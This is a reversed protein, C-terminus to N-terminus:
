FDSVIALIVGYEYIRCRMSILGPRRRKVKKITCFETSHPGNADCFNQVGIRTRGLRSCHEFLKLHRTRQLKRCCLLVFTLLSLMFAANLTFCDLVILLYCVLHKLCRKMRKSQYNNASIRNGIGVNEGEREGAPWCCYSHM